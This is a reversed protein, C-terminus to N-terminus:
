LIPCSCYLLGLRRFPQITEDLLRVDRYSAKKILGCTIDAIFWLATIRTSISRMRAIGLIALVDLAVGKARSPAVLAHIPWYM